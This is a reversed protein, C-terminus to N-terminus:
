YQSCCCSIPLDVPTRLTSVLAQGGEGVELGLVHIEKKNLHTHSQPKQEDHGFTERHCPSSEHGAVHTSPGPRSGGATM